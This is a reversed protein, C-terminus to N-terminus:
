GPWVSSPSPRVQRPSSINCCSLVCVFCKVKMALLVKSANVTFDKSVLYYSMSTLSLVQKELCHIIKYLNEFMGM